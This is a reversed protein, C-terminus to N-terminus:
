GCSDARPYRFFPSFTSSTNDNFYNLRVNQRKEIRPAVPHRPRHSLLEDRLRLADVSNYALAQPVIAVATLFAFIKLKMSILYLSHFLCSGM